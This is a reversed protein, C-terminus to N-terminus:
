ESDKALKDREEQLVTLAGEARRMQDVARQRMPEDGLREAVRVNMEAAFRQQEWELMMQEIVEMQAIVTLQDGM